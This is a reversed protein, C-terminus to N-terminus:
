EQEPRTYGFVRKVDDLKLRFVGLHDRAAPLRGDMICNYITQKAVAGGKRKMWKHAQTITITDLYPELVENPIRWKGGQKVAAPMRGRTIRAYISRPTIGMIPAAEKLTKM